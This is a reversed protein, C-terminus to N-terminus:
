RERQELRDRRRRDLIAQQTRGLQAHGAVRGCDGLGAVPVCIAYCRHTRSGARPCRFYQPVASVELKRTLIM